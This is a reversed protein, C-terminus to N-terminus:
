NEIVEYQVEGWANVNCVLHEPGSSGPRIFTNFTCTRHEWVRDEEKRTSSITNEEGGAGACLQLMTSFEVILM